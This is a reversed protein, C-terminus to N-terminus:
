FNYAVGVKLLELTADSKTADPSGRLHSKQHTYEVNLSVNKAVEYSAGVGWFYSLENTKRYNSEEEDVYSSDYEYRNNALGNTAYVALKDNLDYGVSLKAGYRSEISGEFNANTQLKDFFVGPAVFVNNFNLAYQYNVSVGTDGKEKIKATVSTGLVDITEKQTQKAHIWSLGAYNGETKAFASTAFLSTAVTTIILLKKM